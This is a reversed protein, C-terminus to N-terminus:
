LISFTIAKELSSLYVTRIEKLSKRNGNEDVESNDSRLLFFTEKSIRLKQQKNAEFTVPLVVFYDEYMGKGAHLVYKISCHGTYEQIGKKYDKDVKIYRLGDLIGLVTVLIILFVLSTQTLVVSTIAVGAIPVLILLFLLFFRYYQLVKKYNDPTISELFAPHALSGLVLLFIPAIGLM